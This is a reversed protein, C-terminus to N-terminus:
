RAAWIGDASHHQHQGETSAEGPHLLHDHVGGEEDHGGAQQGPAGHVHQLGAGARCKGQGASVIFNINKLPSLSQDGEFEGEWDAPIEGQSRGM